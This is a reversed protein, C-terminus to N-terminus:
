STVLLNLLENMPRHQFRIFSSAFFFMSIESVCCVIHTHTSFFVVVVAVVVFYFKFFWILGDHCRWRMELTATFLSCVHLLHINRTNSDLLSFLLWLSSSSFRFIPTIRTRNAQQQQTHETNKNSFFFFITKKKREKAWDNWVGLSIERQRRRQRRRRYECESITYVPNSETRNKRTYFIYFAVSFLLLLLLSLLFFRRLLTCFFRICKVLGILHTSFPLFFHDYKRSTEM